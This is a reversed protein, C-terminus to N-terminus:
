LVRRMSARLEAGARIITEAAHLPMFQACDSMSLVSARKLSKLYLKAGNPTSSLSPELARVPNLPCSGVTYGLRDPLISRAPLTAPPLTTPITM